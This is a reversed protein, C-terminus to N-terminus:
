RREELARYVGRSELEHMRGSVIRAITEASSDYWRDSPVPNLWVFGRLHSRLRDVLEQTATRRQPNDNGRAAGADSIIMGFTRHSHSEAAVTEIARADTCDPRAYLYEEPCNYFYYTRHSGIQRTLAAQLRDVIPFFPVMSGSRDVMLLLELRGISRPRLVADAFKGQRQLRDRTAEWDLEVPPGERRPQRLNRWAPRLQRDVIPFDEPHLRFRSPETTPTPECDETQVAVPLKRPSKAARDPPPSPSTSGTEPTQLPSHREGERPDRDVPQTTGPVASKARATKDQFYRDFERDFIDRDFAESPKVWLARCIRKLEATGSLGRGKSLAQCLWGYQEITLSMGADRLRLFLNLFPQHENM